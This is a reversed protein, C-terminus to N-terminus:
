REAETAAAGSAANARASASRAVHEHRLTEDRAVRGALGDHETAAARVRRRRVEACQQLRSRTSIQVSTGPMNLALGRAPARRAGARARQIVVFRLFDRGGAGLHQMRAAIPGSRRHRRAAARDVVGFARSRAPVRSRGRTAASARRADLRDATALADRQDRHFRDAHPLLDAEEGVHERSNLRWPRDTSRIPEASVLTM